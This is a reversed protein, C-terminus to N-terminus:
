GDDLSLFILNKVTVGSFSNFIGRDSGRSPVVGITLLKRQNLVGGTVKLPETSGHSPNKVTWAFSM